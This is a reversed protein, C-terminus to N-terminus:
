ATPREPRTSKGRLALRCLQKTAGIAAPKSCQIRSPFDPVAWAIVANRASSIPGHRGLNDGLLEPLHHWVRNALRDRPGLLPSIRTSFCVKEGFPSRSTRLRSLGAFTIEARCTPEHREKLVPTDMCCPIGDPLSVLGLPPSNTTRAMRCRGPHRVM